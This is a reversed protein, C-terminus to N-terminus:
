RNTTKKEWDEFKMEFKTENKGHLGVEIWGAKKYFKEARTHFETGLWVTIKTKSFYWDLMMQHLKKGIGKGEFDPDLFLAWINNTNLDVIAFGVIRNDIECIWGKGKVTIFSKYDEDTILNPDSLVNEKVSNRVIQMQKIDNINAVRFVM